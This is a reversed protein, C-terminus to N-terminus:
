GGIARALVGRRTRSGTKAFIAKLHDQVTHESLFMMAAIARTDHGAALQTLLQSERATLGYCRAFLSVREAPSSEEIAVAIAPQAGGPEARPGAAGIRGARLTMWLGGSLHVRAWPENDDAGAEAALLQAAVNYAGAPVPAYGDAPPVLMRLYEQAPPTEGLVELDASLLLVVPGARGRSDPQRPAFAAAQGERLSRTVPPSLRALFGADEQTFPVSSASRWLDLFGWCGHQDRFVVSAVDAVGYGSLLERWLLSRALDGGTAQRLLGVPAQLRTWRNVPTLYKLRILRPLEPLCPVDALPACGVSTQPDTLLWAYADFGVAARIEPLLRLRLARTDGAAACLRTIREASRARARSGGPRGGM